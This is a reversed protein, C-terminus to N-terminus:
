ILLESEYLLFLYGKIDNIYLKCFIDIVDRSQRRSNDWIEVILEYAPFTPTIIEPYKFNKYAKLVDMVKESVIFSTTQM